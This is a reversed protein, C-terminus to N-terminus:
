QSGFYRAMEPRLNPQASDPPNPAHVHIDIAKPM